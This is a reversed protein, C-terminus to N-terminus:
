LNLETHVTFRLGTFKLVPNLRLDLQTKFNPYTASDIFVM